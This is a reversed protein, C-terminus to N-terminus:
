MAGGRPACRRLNRRTACTWRRRRWQRFPRFSIGSRFAVERDTLAPQAVPAAALDVVAKSGGVSRILEERARAREEEGAEAEVARFRVMAPVPGSDWHVATFGEPAGLVLTTAPEVAGGLVAAFAPLVLDVGSWGATQESTFRRRYSAFVLAREAGARWYWGYYLQTLPFPSLGELALEVQGAAEAPTAGSAVAV